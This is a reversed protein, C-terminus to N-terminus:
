SHQQGDDDPTQQPQNQQPQKPLQLPGKQGCGAIAFVAAILCSIIVKKAFM